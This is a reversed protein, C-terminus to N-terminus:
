VPKQGAGSFALMSYCEDDFPYDWCGQMRRLYGGFRTKFRYLGHMPHDPNDAPPIGFLDFWRCGAERAELIATWLVAYAATRVRGAPSSASFLYTAQRSTRHFAFISGALPENHCTAMYLRIDPDTQTACVKFLSRFYASSEASINKRDAMERYMRHWASLAEQGCREVTVGRRFASRICYRTKKHMNGLIQEPSCKLDLIVTDPAQMDTPAKRLNWHRCGFNMRLERVRPEPRKDPSQRHFASAEYPSTWPLDFRLFRCREPLRPRIKEAVSELFPGRREERIDIDPGHPVYGFAADTSCPRHVVVLPTKLGRHEVVFAQSHYGREQKFRAWFASQFLNAECDIRAPDVETVTTM